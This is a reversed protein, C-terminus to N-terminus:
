DIEEEQAERLSDPMADPWEEDAPKPQAEEKEKQCQMFSEYEYSDESYSNNFNEHEEGLSKPPEQYGYKRKILTRILEVGDADYLCRGGRGERQAPKAAGCFRQISNRMQVLPVNFLEAIDAISYLRSSDVVFGYSFSHAPIRNRYHHEIKDVAAPHKPQFMLEPKPAQHKPVPLPKVPTVDLAKAPKNMVSMGEKISKLAESIMRATVQVMGDAHQSLIATYSQIQIIATNVQDM